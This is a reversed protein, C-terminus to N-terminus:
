GWDEYCKHLDGDRLLFEVDARFIDGHGHVKRLMGELDLGNEVLDEACTKCVVLGCGVSGEEGRSVTEGVKNRSQIADCAYLAPRPCISCWCYRCEDDEKELAEYAAQEDFTAENYGGMVSLTHARCNSIQLRELACVFCMRTSEHGAVRNGGGMELLGTAPGYDIVEVKKEDLGLMGYKTDACFHCPMSGDVPPNHQFDIPHAWRTIITRTQGISMPRSTHQIGTSCLLQDVQLDFPDRSEDLDSQAVARSTHESVEELVCPKAKRRCRSCPGVAGEKLSCRAKAERCTSCAGLPRSSTSASVSAAGKHSNPLRPEQKRKRISRTQPGASCLLNAARCQECPLHYADKESYSCILAKRVCQQCERKKAHSFLRCDESDEKCVRCPWQIKTDDVMPCRQGSELCPACGRALPDGIGPEQLIIDHQPAQRHGLRTSKATRPLLDFCTVTPMSSAFNGGCMTWLSPPEPKDSTSEIDKTTSSGTSDSLRKLLQRGAQFDLSLDVWLQCGQQRANLLTPKSKKTVRTEQDPDELPEQLHRRRKPRVPEPSALRGTPDYDGSDDKDQAPCVTPALTLTTPRLKGHKEKILTEIYTTTLGRDNASQFLARVEELRQMTYRCGTSAM